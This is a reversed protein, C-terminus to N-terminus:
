VHAGPAARELLSSRSLAAIVADVDEESNYAHFAVRLGNGRASAIIGHTALEAALAAGDRAQVVVL